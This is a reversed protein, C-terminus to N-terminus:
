YNLNTIPFVPNLNGEVAEFLSVGNEDIIHKPSRYLVKNFLVNLQPSFFM